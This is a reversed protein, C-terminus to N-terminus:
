KTGEVEKIRIEIPDVFGSHLNTMLDLEIKHLVNGLTHIKSNFETVLELGQETNRVKVVWDKGDKEMRELLNAKYETEM